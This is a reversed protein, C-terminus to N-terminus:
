PLFSPRRFETYQAPNTLMRDEFDNIPNPMMSRVMGDDNAVRRPVSGSAFPLEKQHTGRVEAMRHGSRLVPEYGAEAAALQGPTVRREGWGDRQAAARVDEGWTRVTDRSAKFSTSGEHEYDNRYPLVAGDQLRDQLRDQLEPNFNVARDQWRGMGTQRDTSSANRSSMSSPEHIADRAFRVPHGHVSRMKPYGKAEDGSQVPYREFGAQPTGFHMGEAYGLEGHIQRDSDDYRVDGPEDGLYDYFDSRDYEPLAEKDNHHWTVMDRSDSQLWNGLDFRSPSRGSSPPKFLRGQPNRQSGEFPGLQRDSYAVM